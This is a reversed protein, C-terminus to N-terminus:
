SDKGNRRRKYEIIEERSYSKVPKPVSESHDFLMIPRLPPKGAARRAMNVLSLAAGLRREFEIEDSASWYM